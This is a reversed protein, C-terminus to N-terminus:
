MRSAISSTPWLNGWLCVSEVEELATPTDEVVDHLWAAALTEPDDTVSAVSNAVNQLHESYPADPHIQSSPEYEQASKHCFQRASQVLSSGLFKDAM